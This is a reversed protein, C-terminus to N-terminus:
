YELIKAFCKLLYADVHTPANHRLLTWCYINKTPLGNEYAM